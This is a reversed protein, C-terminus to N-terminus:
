MEITLYETHKKSVSYIDVAIKLRIKCIDGKVSSNLGNIHITIITENVNIKLM